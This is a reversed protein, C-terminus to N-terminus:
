PTQKSRRLRRTEQLVSGLVLILLTGVVVFIGVIAADGGSHTLKWTVFATIGVVAYFGVLSLLLPLAEKMPAQPFEAAPAGMGRVADRLWSQYVM